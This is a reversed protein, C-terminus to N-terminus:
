HTHDTVWSKVTYPEFKDFVSLLVLQKNM